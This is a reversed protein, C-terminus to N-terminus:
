RRTAWVQPGTVPGAIPEKIMGATRFEAIAERQFLTITKM